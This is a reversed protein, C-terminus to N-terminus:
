FQKIKRLGKYKWTFKLIWKDFGARQRGGGGGGFFDEPLKIPIINFRDTLKYFILIKAMNFRGIWSCSM